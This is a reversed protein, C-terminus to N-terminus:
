PHVMRSWLVSVVTDVGEVVALLARRRSSDALPDETTTEGVYPENINITPPTTDQM